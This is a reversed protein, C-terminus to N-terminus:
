QSTQQCTRLSESKAPSSPSSGGVNLKPSQQEAMPVVGRGTKWGDALFKELDAPDIMKRNGELNVFIRGKVAASLKQKHTESKPGRAIRSFFDSGYKELKTATSKEPNIKLNNQSKPNLGGRKGGASQQEKTWMGGGEGGNKLNLCLPDARLEETVIEAEREQLAKRTPLVDIIERKFNEKGYKKIEAKLRKGSGFYGDDLNETSHMGIYFRDNLLNTTKYLFHKM